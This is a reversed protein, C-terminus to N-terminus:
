TGNWGQKVITVRSHRWAGFVQALGVRARDIQRAGALGRLQHVLEYRWACTRCTWFTM